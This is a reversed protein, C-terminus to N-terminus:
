SSIRQRKASARTIHSPSNTANTGSKSDDSSNLEQMEIERTANATRKDMSETIFCQLKALENRLKYERVGKPNLWALLQQIEEPDSYYYWWESPVQRHFRQYLVPNAKCQRHSNAQLAKMEDLENQLSEMRGALWDREELFGQEKMLELIFLRGGGRGWPPTNAPDEHQFMDDRHLMEMIDNDSPSQVYLRGSGHHDPTGINDLFYYRNYFRDRGLPRIRLTSYQRMTRELQEEKQKFLKEDDELRQWADQPMEEEKVIVESDEKKPEDIKADKKPQKVKSKSSSQPEDKELQPRRRTSRRLSTYTSEEDSDDSEDTGNQDSSADDNAENAENADNAESRAADQISDTQNEEGLQKQDNTTDKDLTSKRLALTKSERNLEVRQRRLETMTEQCEDMYSKITQSENVVGIIFSLLALRKGIDLTAFQKDRDAITSQYKPVLHSVYEELSDLVDPFAVENLCGILALIWNRKDYRIERDDWNRCLRLQEKHRWGISQDHNGNTEDRNRADSECNDGPSQDQDEVDDDDSMMNHEELYDELREGSIMDSPTGKMREKIVVNLLAVFANIVLLLPNSPSSASINDDDRPEYIMVQEFEDVTMTRLRLPKAFVTLFSWCMLLSEFQQENLASQSARTHPKPRAGRGGCPYPILLPEAPAAGGNAVNPTMDILTWYNNPDKRYIPLDLDEIPYKVAAQKRREERIKERELRQLEKLRQNEERRNQREAERQALNDVSQSTAWTDPLMANNVPYGSDVYLQQRKSMMAQYAAEQRDQLHAPLEMSIDYHQAVYEKLLWPAGIYADKTACERVFQQLRVPTFWVPDRRLEDADIIRVSKELPMGFHDVLQVRYELRHDIQNSPEPDPEPHLFADPFRLRGNAQRPVSNSQPMALHVSSYVYNPNPIVDLIEGYYVHGGLICHVIEGTAYNFQYRQYLDQALEELSMTQFQLHSLLRKRLVPCFRYEVRNKEAQESEVAQSYTLQQRGTMECEWIPRQYLM